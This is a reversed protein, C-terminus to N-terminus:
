DLKEIIAKQGNILDASTLENDAKSKNLLEIKKKLEENEAKLKGM